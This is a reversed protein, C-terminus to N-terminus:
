IWHTVNVSTSYIGPTPRSSDAKVDYHTVGGYPSNEETMTNQSLGAVYVPIKQGTSSTAWGREGRGDRKEPFDVVYRNDASADSIDFGILIVNPAIDSSNRVANATPTIVPTTLPQTLTFTLPVSIPNGSKACYGTSATAILITGLLLKNMNKM